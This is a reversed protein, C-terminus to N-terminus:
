LPNSISLFYFNCINCISNKIPSTTRITIKANCTERMSFLPCMLKTEENISKIIISTTYLYTFMKNSTYIHIITRPLFHYSFYINSVNFFYLKRMSQSSLDYIRVFSCFMYFLPIRPLTAWLRIRVISELIPTSLPFQMHVICPWFEGPM